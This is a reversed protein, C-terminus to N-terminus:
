VVFKWGDVLKAENGLGMGVRILNELPYLCCDARRFSFFICCIIAYLSVFAFLKMRVEVVVRCFIMWFCSPNVASGENSLYSLAFFMNAFIFLICYSRLITLM